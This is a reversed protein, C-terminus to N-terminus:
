FLSVTQGNASAYLTWSGPPDNSITAEFEVEDSYAPVVVAVPLSSYASRMSSSIAVIQSQSSAHDMVVRYGVTNGAAVIGNELEFVVPVSGSAPSSKLSSAIGISALAVVLMLVCLFPKMAHEHM